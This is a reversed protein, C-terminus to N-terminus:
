PMSEEHGGACRDLDEGLRASALEEIGKTVTLLWDVCEDLPERKALRGNRLV